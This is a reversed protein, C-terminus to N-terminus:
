ATATPYQYPVLVGMSGKAFAAKAQTLKAASSMAFPGSTYLPANHQQGFLILAQTDKTLEVELEAQETTAFAKASHTNINEGNLWGQGSLIYILGGAGKHLPISVVDDHLSTVHLYTFREPLDLVSEADKYRGALVKIVTSGTKVVPMDRSTVKLGRAPMQENAPSLKVFLQIGHTSIGEVRPVEEHLLGQGALTWLLDGPSAEHKHGLSDQNWIGNKSEPLVYTVASFGAHPHPPFTPSSMSFHDFGFVPNSESYLSDFAIKRVKFGRGNDSTDIQQTKSYRIM